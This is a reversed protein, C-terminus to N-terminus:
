WVPICPPPKMASFSHAFKTVVILFMGQAAVRITPKAVDDLYPVDRTKKQSIIDEFVATSTAAFKERGFYRKKQGTQFLSRCKQLM